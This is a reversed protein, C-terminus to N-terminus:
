ERLWEKLDVNREEFESEIDSDEENYKEPIEQPEEFIIHEGRRALWRKYQMINSITKGSLRNRKRTVIDGAM